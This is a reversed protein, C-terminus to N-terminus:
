LAGVGGLIRLSTNTPTLDTPANVFTPDLTLNSSALTINSNNTCGYFDNEALFTGTDKIARNVGDAVYVGYKGSGTVGYIINNLIHVNSLNVSIGHGTGQYITNGSILGFGYSPGASAVVCNIGDGNCNQIINGVVFTSSTTNMAGFRQDKFLCDKVWDNLGTNKYAYKTGVAQTGTNVFSCQTCSVNSVQQADFGAADFVCDYASASYNVTAFAGGFTSQALSTQTFWFKEVRSFLNLALGYGGHGLKPRGNYGIMSVGAPVSVSATSLNYDIDIPDNSGQGRVYVLNGTVCSSLVFTALAGGVKGTAGSPTGSAAVAREVTITNTNASGTIMYRGATFGSGGSIVFGNGIMATTFGGTASTLTTWPTGACALDTVSLQAADQDTYDTGASAVTPDFCGANTDAGGIRIRWLTAATLAM